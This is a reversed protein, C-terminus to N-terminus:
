LLLIVQWELLVTQAIFRDTFLDHQSSPWIRFQGTQPQNQSAPNPVVVKVVLELTVVPAAVVEVLRVVQQGLLNVM